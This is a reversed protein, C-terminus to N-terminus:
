LLRALAIMVLGCVVLVGAVIKKVRHEREKLFVFALVVALIVYVASIASVEVFYQGFQLARLFAFASLGQVVGCTLILPWVPRRIEAILTKPTAQQAILLYTAPVAFSMFVFFPLNFEGSRSSEITLAATFAVVSLLKLFVYRNLRFKGKDFMLFMNAGVIILAGVLALWRFSRHLFLIGTALFLLRYVQQITTDVSIDLNKRTVADVRDHVAYLIYAVAMLVYTLWYTSFKIPFAPMLVLVSVAAIIQVAVVLAGTSKTDRSIHKFLMLFAVQCVVFMLTFLLWTM